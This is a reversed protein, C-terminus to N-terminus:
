GDQRRRAESESSRDDFERSDPMHSSLGIASGWIGTLDIKRDPEPARTVDFRDPDGEVLMARGPEVGLAAPLRLAVSNGSKFTRTLYQKGM